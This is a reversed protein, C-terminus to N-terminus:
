SIKWLIRNKNLAYLSIMRIISFCLILLSAKQYLFVFPNGDCIIVSSPFFIAFSTWHASFLDNLMQVRIGFCDGKAYLKVKSTVPVM